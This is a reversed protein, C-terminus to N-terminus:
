DTGELVMCGAELSRSFDDSKSCLQMAGLIAQKLQVLKKPLVLGNPIINLNVVALSCKVEVGSPHM